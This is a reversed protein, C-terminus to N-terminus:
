ADSTAQRIEDGTAGVISANIDARLLRETAAIAAKVCIAPACLAGPAGAAPAGAGPAGGAAAGITVEGSGVPRTVYRVSFSISLSISLIAFAFGSRTLRNSSGCLDTSPWAM